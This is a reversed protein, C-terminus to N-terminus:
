ILEVLQGHMLSLAAVIQAKTKGYTDKDAMTTDANVQNDYWSNTVTGSNSAVLGGKTGTSTVTGTAYSNLITGGSQNQGVLGGVSSNGNVTAIQIHIKLLEQNYSVLLGGIYSNTGGSVSGTIYSNKITANSQMQGVLGGSNASGIINANTLGVNSIISGQIKNFLGASTNRNIFLSDITHGLGDFNGQFYTGIPNFGAGSNWSSTDSADIDAGLVYNGSLNGNIGQLDTGTTSGASRFIYYSEM